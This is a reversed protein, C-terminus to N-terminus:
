GAVKFTPLGDAWLESYLQDWNALQEVRGREVSEMIRLINEETLPEHSELVHQDRCWSEIDLARARDPLGDEGMGLYPYKVASCPHVYPVSTYVTDGVCVRVPLEGFRGSLVRVAELMRVLKLMELEALRNAEIRPTVADV